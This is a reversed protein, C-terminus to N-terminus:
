IMHGKAERQSIVSLDNLIQEAIAPVLQSLDETKLSRFESGYHM